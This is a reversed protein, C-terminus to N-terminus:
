KIKIKKLLYPQYKAELHIGILFTLVTINIIYSIPLIMPGRPVYFIIRMGIFYM